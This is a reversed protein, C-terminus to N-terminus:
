SVQMSAYKCICGRGEMRGGDDGRAHDPRSLVQLCTDAYTVDPKGRRVGASLRSGRSALFESRAFRRTLVAISDVHSFFLM